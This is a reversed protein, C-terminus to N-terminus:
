KEREMLDKAYSIAKEIKEKYIKTLGGVFVEPMNNKIEPNPLVLGRRMQWIGYSFPVHGYLFSEIKMRDKNNDESCILFRKKVDRKIKGYGKDKADNMAILYPVDYVWIESESNITKENSYKMLFVFVPVPQNAWYHLDKKIESDQIHKKRTKVQCFFHLTPELDDQKLIECYLDIGTDRGQAVNRVICFPSLLSAIKHEGINGLHITSSQVKKM